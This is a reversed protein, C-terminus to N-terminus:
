TKKIINRIARKLNLSRGIKNKVIHRTNRFFRGSVKSIFRAPVRLIRFTVRFPYTLVSWVAKLIRCILRIIFMASGVVLKSLLLVYLVVGLFAGLFIFGRLEGDNSFYVVGFMILAVLIWYVFDEIYIIALNTKLAKRRIRFLDYLFAILMGGLVACLFIYAQNNVSPAM